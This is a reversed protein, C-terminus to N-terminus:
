AGVKNYKRNLGNVNNSRLVAEITKMNKFKIKIKKIM